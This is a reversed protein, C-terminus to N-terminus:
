EVRNNAVAWVYAAVQQAQEDSIGGPYAAMATGSVGNRVTELISAFDGTGSAHRIKFTKERMTHRMVADYLPTLRDHGLAPVYDTKTTNM